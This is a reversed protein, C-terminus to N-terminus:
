DGEPHLAWAYDRLAEARRRVLDVKRDLHIPLWMTGEMRGYVADLAAFEADRFALWRRQADRLVDAAEPELEAMVREYARNLEADWDDYAADLCRLMGHTSPDADMCAGLRQDIPDEAEVTQAATPVALLLLPLALLRM